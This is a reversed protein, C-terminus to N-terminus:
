GLPKQLNMKPLRTSWLWGMMALKLAKDLQM